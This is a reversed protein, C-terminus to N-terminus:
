ATRNRPPPPNFYGIGIVLVGVGLFSVIRAVPESGSLDVLILKAVVVALLAAGTFWARRAIRRTGIVMAACAMLSWLLSLGTQAIEDRLLADVTWRVGGLQHAGRVVMATAVTFLSAAAVPAALNRAQEPLAEPLGLRRATLALAALVLLQGLELPNFVPVFPLPAPDGPDLCGLLVAALAFALLAGTGDRWGQPHREAPWAGATRTALAFAVAAPIVGWQVNAWSAGVATVDIWSALAWAPIVGLLLAALGHDLHRAPSPQAVRGLATFLLSWALPWALAAPHTWLRSAGGDVVVGAATCLALLPMGALVLRAGGRWRHPIGAALAISLALWGVQASAAVDRSLRDDLDLFPVGIWLLAGWGLLVTGVRRGLRDGELFLACAVAGAALMLASIVRADLLPLATADRGDALLWATLALPQLACGAWVPLRRDQRRGLWVLGAGELAWAAGTVPGSDAAFPVALTAFVAALALHSEALLRLGPGARRWLLRALIGYLIGAALACFAVGFRTDAVLGAQLSFAVAPLGFILGGDLVGRVGRLREVTHAFLIPIALYLAVFWLLLLQAALRDETRVGDIAWVLALLATVAFSVWNLSRWARYRAIGLVGLGLLAYYSFLAVFDGSGTSTVLPAAYGGVTAFLALPLANQLVALAASLAVVVVLASFAPGAGYLDYLRLGAFIALYLVAVGTGQLVLGYAGERARFRYGVGTLVVGVLAIGALRVGPPMLGQDALLRTLFGVGIILLVAGIRVLANDGILWRWARAVREDLSPAPRRPPSGIADDSTTPADSPPGTSEADARDAPRTAPAAPRAAGSAAAPARAAPSPSPAASSHRAASGAAPAATSGELEAVRKELRLLRAILVGVVIGLLAGPADLLAAGILLGAIAFAVIDIDPVEARKARLM